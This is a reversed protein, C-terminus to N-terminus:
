LKTVGRAVLAVLAFVAITTLVFALDAMTHEQTLDTEPVGQAFGRGRGGGGANVAERRGPAAKQRRGYAGSVRGQRGGPFAAPGVCFGTPRVGHLPRGM